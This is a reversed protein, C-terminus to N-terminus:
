ADVLHNEAYETTLTLTNGAVGGVELSVVVSDNEDNVNCVRAEKHCVRVRDGFQIDSM